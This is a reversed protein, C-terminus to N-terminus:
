DQEIKEQKGCITCVMITPDTFSSKFFYYIGVFVMPIGILIFSLVAGLILLLAALQIEKNKLQKYNHNCKM